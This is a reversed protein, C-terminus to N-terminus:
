AVFLNKQCPKKSRSRERLTDETLGLYAFIFALVILASASIESYSSRCFTCFGPLTALLLAAFGGTVQMSLYMYFSFVTLLVLLGLTQNTRFPVLVSGAGPLIKLWPLMLLPYGFPTMSPLKDYGLQLRPRGGKLLSKAQAFYAAADVPLLGLLATKRYDIKLVTFYYFALACILLSSGSM